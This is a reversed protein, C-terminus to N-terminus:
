ENLFKSSKNPPIQYNFIIGQQTQKKKHQNNDLINIHKIYVYVKLFAKGSTLLGIVHKFNNFFM